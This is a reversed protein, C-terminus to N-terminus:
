VIAKRPKWAWSSARLTQARSTGRLRLTSSMHIPTDIPPGSSNCSLSSKPLDATHQMRPPLPRLCTGHLEGDPHVAADHILAAERSSPFVCAVDPCTHTLWISPTFSACVRSSHASWSAMSGQRASRRCGQDYAGHVVQAVNFAVCTANLGRIMGDHSHTQLHGLKLHVCVFPPDGVVPYTKSDVQQHVNVDNIKSSTDLSRYFMPCPFPLGRKGACIPRACRTHWAYTCGIFTRTDM